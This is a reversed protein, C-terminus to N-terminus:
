ESFEAWGDSRALCDSWQANGLEAVYPTPPSTVTVIPWTVGVPMCSEAPKPMESAVVTGALLSFFGRRNM